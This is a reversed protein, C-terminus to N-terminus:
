KSVPDRYSGPWDLVKSGGSKAEPISPNCAHSVVGLKGMTSKRLHNTNKGPHRVGERCAVESEKHFWGFMFFDVCFQTRATHM